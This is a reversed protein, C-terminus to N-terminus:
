TKPGDYYITLAEQGKRKLVREAEESDAKKVLREVVESASIKYHRVLRRLGAEAHADLEITIKEKEDEM